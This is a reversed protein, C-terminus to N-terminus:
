DGGSRRACLRECGGAYVSVSLPSGVATPNRALLFTVTAMNSAASRYAIELSEVEDTPAAAALAVLLTAVAFFRM